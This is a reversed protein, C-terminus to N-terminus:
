APPLLKVSEWIYGQRNEYWAVWSCATFGHNAVFRDLLKSYKWNAFKKIMTKTVESNLLVRMGRLGLQNSQQCFAQILAKGSLHPRINAAHVFVHIGTAGVRFEVIHNDRTTSDPTSAGLLLVSFSGGHTKLRTLVLVLKLVIYYTM